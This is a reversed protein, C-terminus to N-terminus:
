RNKRGNVFREIQAALDFPETYIYCAEKKDYVVPAGFVEKFERIYRKMTSKSVEFRASLDTLSGTAKLRILDDLRKFHNILAQLDM